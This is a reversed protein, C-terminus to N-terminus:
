GSETKRVQKRGLCPFKGAPSDIYEDWTVDRPQPPALSDKRALDDGNQEINGKTFNELLAKNKQLDESSLHERRKRTELSIGNISYFTANYNGVM